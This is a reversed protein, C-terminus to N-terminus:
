RPIGQRAVTELGLLSLATTSRIAEAEEVPLGAAALRELPDEIGMDFPYDTGLVVRDAGAVSVLHRLAEPTYVLADFWIRRLYESPPRACGRADPRAHWAHDARGIYTPLYGGGHAFCLRLEPYRDLLGSFIVHSLAIANEVPQGVTNALYHAALRTGLTCGWPHVFVVAGLEAARAWVPEHRPDALERGDVNTSVSIGRLGLETVAETLLNVALGAHQLPVTGLGLLRVPNTACHAAIAENTVRAFREAPAPMAWYHHMPMPGVVQIDIGMGDMDSLRRDPDTLQEARETLQKRNAVLTEPTNAVEDAAREVLRGPFGDVLEDAQPVLLHGHVDVAPSM